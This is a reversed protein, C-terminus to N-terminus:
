LVELELNGLSSLGALLNVFSTQVGGTTHRPEAPYPGVLAVRVSRRETPYLRSWGGGSCGSSYGRWCRPSLSSAITWLRRTSQSSSSAPSRRLSSGGIPLLPECM